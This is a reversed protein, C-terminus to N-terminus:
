LEEKIMYEMLIDKTVRVCHVHYLAYPCYMKIESCRGYEYHPTCHLCHDDTACSEKHKKSIRASCIVKHAKNNM